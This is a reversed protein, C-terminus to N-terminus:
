RQRSLFRRRGSLNTRCIELEAVGSVTQNDRLFRAQGFWLSSAILKISGAVVLRDALATREVACVAHSVNGLYEVGTLAM